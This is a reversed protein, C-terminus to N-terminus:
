GVKFCILRPTAKVVRAIDTATQYARRSYKAAALQQQDGGGQWPMTEVVSCLYIVLGRGLMHAFMMMPECEVLTSQVLTEQQLLQMRSEVASILREHRARSEQPNKGGIPASLIQRRHAMCRGCLAAMVTAEAFPPLPERGRNAMAERLFEM